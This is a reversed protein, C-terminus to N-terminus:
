EEPINRPMHKPHNGVNRSLGLIPSSSEQLHSRYATGFSRYGVVLDLGCLMGNNYRKTYLQTFRIIEIYKKAHRISPKLM